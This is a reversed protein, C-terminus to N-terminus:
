PNVTLTGTMSPHISCHYTLTGATAMTIPASTAGPAISGTDFGGSGDQTATHAVTDGNKWAVSQGVSVTAPSPSYSQSGLMGSITIVVSASTGGTTGSPTPTPTPAATPSTNSDNCAVAAAAMAALAFLRVFARKNM